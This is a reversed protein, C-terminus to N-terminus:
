RAISEVYRHDIEGLISNAQKQGYMLVLYKEVWEVLRDKFTGMILQRLVDPSLLRYIDARPFDNTFPKM